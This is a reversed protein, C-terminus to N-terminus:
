WRAAVSRSRIRSSSRAGPKGEGYWYSVGEAQVALEKCTPRAVALMSASSLELDHVPASSM